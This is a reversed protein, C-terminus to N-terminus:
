LISIIFSPPLNAKYTFSSSVISTQEFSFPFVIVQVDISMSLFSRFASSTYWSLFFYPIFPLCQFVFFFSHQPFSTRKAERIVLFSSSFLEMTQEESRRCDMWHSIDERKRWWWRESVRESERGGEELKMMKIETVMTTMMMTVKEEIESVMMMMVSRSIIALSRKRCLMGTDVFLLLM